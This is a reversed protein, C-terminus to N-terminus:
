GVCFFLDFYYFRDGMWVYDFKFIDKLCCIINVDDGLKALM